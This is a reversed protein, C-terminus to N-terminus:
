SIRQWSRDTAKWDSERRNLTAKVDTEFGYGLFVEDTKNVFIQMDM